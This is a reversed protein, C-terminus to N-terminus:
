FIDHLVGLLRLVDDYPIVNSLVRLEEEACEKTQRIAIAVDFGNVVTEHLDLYDIHRSLIQEDDSSGFIRICNFLTGYLRQGEITKTILEYRKAKEDSIPNEEDIEKRSNVFKEGNADDMTKTSRIGLRQLSTKKIKNLIWDLTVTGQEAGPLIDNINVGLTNALSQVRANESESFHKITPQVFRGCTIGRHDTKRKFEELEAERRAMEESVPGPGAKELTRIANWADIDCLKKENEDMEKQIEELPRTDEIRDKHISMLELFAKNNNKIIKPIGKLLQTKTKWLVVTNLKVPDVFYCYRGMPDPYSFPTDRATIKGSYINGLVDVRPNGNITNFSIRTDECWYRCIEGNVKEVFVGNGYDYTKVTKVVKNM